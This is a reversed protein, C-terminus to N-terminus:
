FGLANIARNGAQPVEQAVRTVMITDRLQVGAKALAEAATHALWQAVYDRKIEDNGLDTPIELCAGTMAMHFQPKGVTCAITLYHNNLGKELVSAGIMTKNTKPPENTVAVVLYAGSHAKSWLLGLAIPRGEDDMRKEDDESMLVGRNPDMPHGHGVIPKPRDAEDKGSHAM